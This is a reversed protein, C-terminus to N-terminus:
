FDSWRRRLPITSRGDLWFALVSGWVTTLRLFLRNLSHTPLFSCTLSSCHNQIYRVWAAAVVWDLRGPVPPGRLVGRGEDCVLFQEAGAHYWFGSSIGGAAYPPRTVCRWYKAVYDRAREQESTSGLAGMSVIMWACFIIGCLSPVISLLRFAQIFFSTFKSSSNSPPIFILSSSSDCLTALRVLPIMM